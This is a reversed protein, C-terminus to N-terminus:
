LLTPVSVDKNESNLRFLTIRSKKDKISFTITGHKETSFVTTESKAANKLTEPSPFYNRKKDGSSVILYHPAVHSLFPLSNSTASGHHPSLLVDAELEIGAEVLKLEKESSIDGPFLFSVGDTVLRVILGNDNYTRGRNNVLHGESNRNIPHDAITIITNKDKIVPENGPFHLQVGHSIALEIMSLYNQKNTGAHPLWLHLPRFKEYLASIGNYHDSDAHTVILHDLRGIGRHWLFPSIIREGCNFGPASVAGADILINSGNELEILSSSGQGVDIFSVTSESRFIGSWPTLPFFMIISAILFLTIGIPFVRNSRPVTFLLLSCYYLATVMLPPAPLWVTSYTGSALFRVITISMNLGIAGINLFLDAVPQYILMFPIALFGCPLSWLCIVPEILLNSLITVTSFQNFHYLLVPITGLTASTSVAIITVVWKMVKGYFFLHKENLIDPQLIRMIHPTLVIISIVAMFSLQFSATELCLPDVVLILFAACALITLPSKIRDTCLAFVVFVSMIFSRVVPPNAGALLTYLFLLPLCLLLSLKKINCTLILRESRRLFYYFATFLFFGLLGMHLGSIAVIHEFSVQQLITYNCVKM